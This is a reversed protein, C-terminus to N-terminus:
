LINACYDFEYWIIFKFFILEMLICVAYRFISFESLWSYIYILRNLYFVAVM